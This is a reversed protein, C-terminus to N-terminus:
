PRALCMQFKSDCSHRFIGRLVRVVVDEGVLAAAESMIVEVDAVFIRTAEKKGNWVV